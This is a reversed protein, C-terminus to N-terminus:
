DIVTGIRGWSVGEDLTLNMWIFFAKGVLNEDPVFGWYRSDNSNDRNDGMVFYKGEPVVWTNELTPKRPDRLIDHEIEGLQEKLRNLTRGASDGYGDQFEQNMPEDNVYVIKNYYTIKDGPLGVIRKIYDVSPDRPYRFVVVDGRAPKGLDLVKKNVVPIRIGYAFKSVLIFDGIELTPLMSGSPIRFPEVAFGRLLFVIVVVPFLFKSYEVFIPEPVAAEDEAPVGTLRKARFFLNDVLWTVGTIAILIVLILSFDFNM